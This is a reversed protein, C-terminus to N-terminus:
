TTSMQRVTRKRMIKTKQNKIKSELNDEDAEGDDKGDEEEHHHDLELPQPCVKSVILILVVAHLRGLALM